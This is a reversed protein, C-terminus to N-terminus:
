SSEGKPRDIPTHRTPWNPVAIAEAKAALASSKAAVVNTEPTPESTVGAAFPCGACLDRRARRPADPLGDAYWARIAPLTLGLEAAKGSAVLVLYFDTPTLAVCVHDGGDHANPIPEPLIGSRRFRWTRRPEPTFPTRM